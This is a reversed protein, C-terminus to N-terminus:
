HFAIWHNVSKKLQGVNHKCTEIAIVAAATFVVCKGNPVIWFAGISDMWNHHGTCGTQFTLVVEKDVKIFRVFGPNNLLYMFLNHSSRPFNVM